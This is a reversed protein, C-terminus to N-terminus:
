ELVGFLKKTQLMTCVYLLFVVDFLCLFFFGQQLSITIEDIYIRVYALFKTSYRNCLVVNKMDNRKKKDRKQSLPRLGNRMGEWFRRCVVNSADVDRSFSVVSFFTITRNVGRSGKWKEVQIQICICCFCTCWFFSEKKTRKKNNNTSTSLVVSVVAEEECWYWFSWMIATLSACYYSHVISRWSVNM